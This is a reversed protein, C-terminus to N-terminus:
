FKAGIEKCFIITYNQIALITLEYYTREIPKVNGYEDM